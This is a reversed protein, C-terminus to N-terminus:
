GYVVGLEQTLVDKISIQCQTLIDVIKEDQTTEANARISATLNELETLSRSLNTTNSLKTTM